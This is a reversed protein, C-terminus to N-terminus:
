KVDSAVGMTTTCVGVDCLRCLSVVVKLLEADVGISLLIVLGLLRQPVVAEEWHLFQM